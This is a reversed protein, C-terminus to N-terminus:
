FALRLFYKFIPRYIFIETGRQQLFCLGVTSVFIEITVNCLVNIRMFNSLVHDEFQQSRGEMIVGILKGYFLQSGRHALLEILVM